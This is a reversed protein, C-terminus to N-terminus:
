SVFLACLYSQEQYKNLEKPFEIENKKEYKSLAQGSILEIDSIGSLQIMAELKFTTAGGAFNGKKARKKIAIKDIQNTELFNKFEQAFSLLVKTDEDDSITLKKEKINIYQNQNTTDIISVIINNSKLEIGCINM